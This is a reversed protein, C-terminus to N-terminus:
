ETTRLHYYYKGDMCYEDHFVWGLNVLTEYHDAILYHKLKLQIECVHICKRFAHEIELKQKLKRRDDKPRDDTMIEWYEDIEKNHEAPTPVDLTEKM